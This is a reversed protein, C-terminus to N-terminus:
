KVFTKLAIVVAGIIALVAIPSVPPKEETVTLTVPDSWFGEYMAALTHVQFPGIWEFPPIWAVSYYGNLDTEAAALFTGTSVEKVNITLGPVPEANYLVRGSFVIPSGYQQTTPSAELTVLASM